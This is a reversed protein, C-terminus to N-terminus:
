TARIANKRMTEARAELTKLRERGQKSKKALTEVHLLLTPSNMKSRIEKLFPSIKSLTFWMEGCCDFFLDENLAGLLVLSAATDWYGMVKRGWANEPISYANAIKMFDDADQPLFSGGWWARAKRMEAERRLDYLQLIIQADDTTPKKAM